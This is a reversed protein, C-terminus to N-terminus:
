EPVWGVGGADDIIFDEAGVQGDIHAGRKFNIGKAKAFKAVEDAQQATLAADEKGYAQAVWKKDSWSNLSNKVELTVEPLGKPRYSYFESTGNQMGLNYQDFSTNGANTKPNIKGTVTDFAPIYKDNDRGIAGICHNLIDTEQALDRPDTLKVFMGADPDRQTNFLEATRKSIIQNKAEMSKKLIRISEDDKKHVISAIQQLSKDELSEVPIQHEDISRQLTYIADTIDGKLTQNGRAHFLEKGTKNALNLDEFIRGQRLIMDKNGEVDRLLSEPIEIGRDKYSKITDQAYILGQNGARVLGAEATKGINKSTITQLHSPREFPYNITSSLWKDLVFEPTGYKSLEKPTIKSTILTDLFEERDSGAKVSELWGPNRAHSVVSDLDSIVKRSLMTTNANRFAAVMMPTATAGSVAAKLSAGVKAFAGPGIYDTPDISIPGITPGSIADKEANSRTIEEETPAHLKTDTVSPSLDKGAWLKTPGKKSQQEPFIKAFDEFFSGM